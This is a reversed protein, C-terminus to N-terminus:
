GRKLIELEAKLVKKKPESKTSLKSRKYRERQENEHFPTASSSTSRIRPKLALRGAVFKYGANEANKKDLFRAFGDVEDFTVAENESGELESGKRKRRNLGRVFNYSDILAKM